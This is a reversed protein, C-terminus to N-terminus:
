TSKDNNQCIREVGKLCDEIKDTLWGAAQRKQQTELEKVLHGDLLLLMRNIDKIVDSATDYANM